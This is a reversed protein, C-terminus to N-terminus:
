RKVIVDRWPGRALFFKVSEFSSFLKEIGRNNFLQTPHRSGQQSVLLSNIDQIAFTYKPVSELKDDVHIFALLYSKPRLIKFLREVVATLLPPSLHELLDWVLVGDFHGEPYDLARTLFDEIRGQNSQDTTGAEGFTESLIQFINESYLRHGLETIFAINKETAGGLDLITLEAQDRIHTFFENLGRSELPFVLSETGLSDDSNAGAEWRRQALELLDCNAPSPLVTMNGTEDKHLIVGIEKMKKLLEIEAGLVGLEALRADAEEKRVKSNITRRQLEAEIKKQEAEAFDKVAAAYEKSALGELKRHGLEITEELIDNPALQHEDAFNSIADATERLREGARGFWDGPLLARVRAILRSIVGEREFV